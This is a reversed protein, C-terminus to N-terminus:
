LNCFAFNHVKNYYFFFTSHILETIWLTWTTSVHGPNFVLRLNGHCCGLQTKWCQICEGATQKKLTHPALVAVEAQPEVAVKASTVATCPRLAGGVAAGLEGSLFVEAQVGHFHPRNPLRWLWLIYLVKM